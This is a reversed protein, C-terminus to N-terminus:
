ARWIKRLDGSVIFGTCSDHFRDLVPTRIFMTVFGEDRLSYKELTCIV